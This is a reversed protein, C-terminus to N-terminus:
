WFVLVYVDNMCMEIGSIYAILHQTRTGEACTDMEALVSVEGPASKCEYFTSQLLQTYVNTM